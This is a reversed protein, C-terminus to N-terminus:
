EASIFTLDVHIHKHGAWLGGQNIEPGEVHMDRSRVFEEHSQQRVLERPLGAHDCIEALHQGLKLGRFGGQFLDFLFLGLILRILSSEHQHLHM